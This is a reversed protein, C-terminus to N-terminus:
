DLNEFNQSLMVAPLPLYGGLIVLAILTVWDRDRSKVSV